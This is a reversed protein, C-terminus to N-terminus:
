NSAHRACELGDGQDALVLAGLDGLREQPQPIKQFSPAHPDHEIRQRGRVDALVIVGHQREFVDATGGFKGDDDAAVAGHEVDGAGKRRVVHRQYPDVLPPEAKRVSRDISV